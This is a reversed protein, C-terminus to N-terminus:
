ATGWENEADKRRDLAAEYAPRMALQGAVIARRIHQLEEKVEALNEGAQIRREVAVLASVVRSGAIHYILGDSIGDGPKEAPPETGTILNSIYNSLAIGFRGAAKEAREKIEPRVRLYLPVTTRTPAAARPHPERPPQGEILERLVKRANLM